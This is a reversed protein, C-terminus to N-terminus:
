DEDIVDAYEGYDYDEEDLYEIVMGNDIFMKMCDNTVEEWAKEVARDYLLKNIEYDKDEEDPEEVDIYDKIDICETCGEAWNYPIYAVTKANCENIKYYWTESIAQGVTHRTMNGDIDVILEEKNGNSFSIDYALDDVMEKIKPEITLEWMKEIAKNLREKRTLKNM